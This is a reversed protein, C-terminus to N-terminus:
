TSAGARASGNGSPRTRSVKSSGWRAMVAPCAATSYSSSSTSPPPVMSHGAPKVPPWLCNMSRIPISVSWKEHCCAIYRPVSEQSERQSLCSLQKCPVGFLPWFQYIDLLFNVVSLFHKDQLLLDTHFCRSEQKYCMSSRSRTRIRSASAPFQTVTRAAPIAASAASLFSRHCNWRCSSGARSDGYKACPFKDFDSVVAVLGSLISRM